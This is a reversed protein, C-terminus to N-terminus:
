SLIGRESDRKQSAGFPAVVVCGLVSGLSSVHSGAPRPLPLEDLGQGSPAFCFIQGLSQRNTESVMVGFQSCFATSNGHLDTSVM